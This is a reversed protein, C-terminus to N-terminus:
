IKGYNQVAAKWVAIPLLGIILFPFLVEYWVKWFGKKLFIIVQVLSLNCFQFTTKNHIKWLVIPSIGKNGDTLGTEGWQYKVFNSYKFM